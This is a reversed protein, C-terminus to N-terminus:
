LLTILCTRFVLYLSSVSTILHYNIAYNIVEYKAERVQHENVTTYRTDRRTEIELMACTAYVFTFSSSSCDKDRM